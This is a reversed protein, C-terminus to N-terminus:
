DYYGSYFLEPAKYETTGTCTLMMKKGVGTGVDRSVGFDIIKINKGKADYLINDPKIDRHCLGISHMYAIADLLQYVISQLDEEKFLQIQDYTETLTPYEYYEMVLYSKHQSTSIYLSKYKIINPHSLTKIINYSHKM